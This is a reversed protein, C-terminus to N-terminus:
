VSRPTARWARTFGEVAADFESQGERAVWSSGSIQSVVLTGVEPHADLWRLVARNWRACDRRDAPSRLEKTARTLPCGSRAISIGHWRNAKAVVDLAARLHSAHSDGVLAVVASARERDVGFTCEHVLGEGTLTTCPANPRNAAELPTPIVALRLRANTCPRRPDRAAAGFCRPADALVRQSARAAADLRNRLHDSAGLLVAAVVSTAAAASAFTWRPSRSTLLRGRRVPDEILVKTLWALVLVFMLLVVRTEGQVDRGTAYPALVLLPLHWLYLSYSVNGTLQVPPLRLVPTPSWRRVPAGAWIVAVAGAVPLAAALGPFATTPGYALAATAIAAIGAWSFVCRLGEHVRDNPRLLALLGGAGFEWARAPTAFYTAEPNSATAHISYALTLVTAAAMLLGIAARRGRAVSAGALVLLPWALYFQEEVSLSWYHQVPSAANSEALYDVADSALHWNQVYATSAGVEALFQSWRHEPVLVITAALCALLVTLAAPLIRRARRAWFDAVSLRGTRDVERLLLSTILFGSIVFFVDVGVYGAPVAQPWVHYTVVLLVAIARLAQIETRLM